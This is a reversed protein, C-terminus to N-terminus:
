SSSRWRHSVAADKFRTRPRKLYKYLTASEHIGLEMLLLGNCDSEIPYTRNVEDCHQMVISKNREEVKCNM